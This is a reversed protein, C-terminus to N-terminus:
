KAAHLRATSIGGDKLKAQLLVIQSAEIADQALRVFQEIRYSTDTASEDFVLTQLDRAAIGIAQRPINEQFIQTWSSEASSYFFTRGRHKVYYGETSSFATANRLINQLNAKRDLAALDEGASILEHLKEPPVSKFAERLKVPDMGAMRGRDILNVLQPEPITASPSKSKLRLTKWAEPNRRELDELIQSRAIRVIEAATANELGFKEMLEELAQYSYADSMLSTTAYELPDGADDEATRILSEPGAVSIGEAPKSDDNKQASNPLNQFHDLYIKWGENPTFMQDFPLLRESAGGFQSALAKRAQLVEDYVRRLTRNMQLADSAVMSPLPKGLRLDALYSGATELDTEFESPFLSASKLGAQVSSEELDVLYKCALSNQTALKVHEKWRCKKLFGLM